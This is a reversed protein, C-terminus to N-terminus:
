SSSTPVQDQKEESKTEQKTEPQQPQQPQDHHQPQISPADDLPQLLQDLIKLPWHLKVEIWCPTDEIRKRNYDPGFGKVFSMRLVCHKQYDDVGVNQAAAMEPSVGHINAKMMNRALQVHQAQDLMKRYSYKLDFVKLEASSYIKHVAPRDGCQSDLYPSELFVSHESNVKLWVDGGEDHRLEIGKGIHPRAREVVEDRHVNSLCGLCFRAVGNPDTFGDVVVTTCEFPVKFPQGVHVNLEFYNITCWLELALIFIFVYFINSFNFNM